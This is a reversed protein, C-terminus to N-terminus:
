SSFKKIYEIAKLLLIPSDKFGGLGTNCGPCLLARVKGTSHCHDVYPTTMEVACVACKGGQEELMREYDVLPLKYLTMLDSHKRIRKSKEPNDRVWDKSRQKYYEPNAAYGAKWVESMCSRCRTRLGDKQYKDKSFETEDKEAGCKSCTKM